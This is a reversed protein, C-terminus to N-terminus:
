RGARTRVFEQVFDLLNPSRLGICRAEQYAQEETWGDALMRRIMWFAGARNGSACHLYIPFVAPDRTAALFAEAQEPRPDAARVPIHVFALGVARAAAEEAAVDQETSERLDIVTRIGERALDAFQETEPQGGTCVNPDVRVFHSIEEVPRGRLVFATAVIALGTLFLIRPAPRM